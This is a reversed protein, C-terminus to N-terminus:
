KDFILIQEGERCFNYKERAVKEAASAKHELDHVDSNLQLCEATTKELELKLDSVTQQMDQYRKYVPMVMVVCFAFIIALLLYLFFSLVKQVKDDM